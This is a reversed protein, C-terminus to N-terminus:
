ASTAGAPVKQDAGGAPAASGGGRTAGSYKASWRDNFLAVNDGYGSFRESGSQSEFHILVSRPEYLINWGLEAVTLCLDVDENGNWYEECFGGVAEFVHRRAALAAGTVAPVLSPVLAAPSSGAERYLRHTGHLLGQGDRVLDVGAHQLTGDPFLLRSGAIGLKRDVGFAAVLSDLWGQLVVTDNNLFLIIEGAAAAAGQNCARAFGRNDENRLLRFPARGSFEVADTGDSSGNDVLVIEFAVHDTAAALSELCQRTLDVRNFCPIVVSVLPETGSPSGLSGTRAAAGGGPALGPPVAVSDLLDPCLQRTEEVIVALEVPSAARFADRYSGLARQDAFAARAAAASRARLVPPVTLSRAVAVLPCADAHGAARLRASWVMSRDVGLRPALKSAAALVATVGLGGGSVCADLVADAVEPRLQLIQALFLHARDAPIAAALGDFPRGALVLYDVVTALHTDLAGEEGLSALLVDAAESFRGIGALSEARWSACLAPTINFGDADVHGPEIGELRVLADDHRGMGLLVPITLISVTNTDAGEAGLRRCWDLAEDWRKLESCAEIAARVALRRTIGNDTRELAEDIRRLAEEYRGALLLSRALSTLSYGFDWSDAREVEAEAARLNREAKARNTLSADLYGTHRLCAVEMVAQTIAGATGRRGIQEHIRGTWECRARRFLRAAHHVFESGTGAGTLNRIPVSWADVDSGTRVLVSRLTAPDAVELTEDADIWLVWEGACRTLAENRARSFDDDWFGEIVEAGHRRALEVTGDSSGTDYVVIQDAVGAVSDLCAGLQDEEDKVILCASLLPGRASARAADHAAVFRDRNKEQEAFWDLGNADFTRHGDHHVFSGHCLRLGYGAESLRQCLDDDEYGGIGYSEDFGGIQEFASRRVAICFGVLRDVTDVQGRHAQNWARAFRRMESTGSYDTAILQAGSVFNSRPGAAGVEPDQFVEVLPEIWHPVLVTDNNLFIVVEHRARAAGDNCGGAFGRNVPNSVVEVWPYSALGSATGDSSGNDVVVVQDRPALTQRLSDLCKRTTSWSNWALIVITAPPRNM